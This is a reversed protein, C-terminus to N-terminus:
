FTPRGDTEGRLAFALVHALVEGLADDPEVPRMAGGGVHAEGGLHEILGSEHLPVFGTRNDHYTGRLVLALRRQEPGRVAVITRGYLQAAEQEPVGIKVYWGPADRVGQDALFEKMEGCGAYEYPPINYGQHRAFHRLYLAADGVEVRPGLLVSAMRATDALDAHELCREALALADARVAPTSPFGYM